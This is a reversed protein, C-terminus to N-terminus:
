RLSAPRRDTGLFWRRLSAATAEPDVFPGLHACGVFREAHGDPLAEAVKPAWDGSPETTRDGYAVLVPAAVDGLRTWGQRLFQEYARAEHEPTCALAVTGDAQDLFGHEVYAELADAALEDFPPRSRYRAIAEARSAFTARRRRTAEAMASPGEASDEPSRPFIIPEFVWLREFTGPRTAETLLSTAGGMSHATAWAGRLGFHDAVVSLDGVMDEEAFTVDDPARSSGHARLDVGIARVEPLRAIVPEWMRSCLGTGHVFVMPRGEGGYDHAAVDVGGHSAVLTTEPQHVAGM